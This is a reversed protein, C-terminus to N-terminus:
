LSPRTAKGKEILQNAVSRAKDIPIAFGIGEYGGTQSYILANIGIVRGEADCLAGGSNGPNIAADTQILGTYTKNSNGSSAPLTVTRNLASIIGATITREFGFPSVIAIAPEGVQLDRVSGLDASRLDKRDVKVVALDTEPDTGVVTGKIDEDTGITVWIENAGEVVHNNTIIYGDNRFIVGSGQGSVWLNEHFLDSMVSKTRINVVSPQVKKAVEIVTDTPLSAASDGRYVVRETTVPKAGGKFLTLLNMGLMTPVLFTAIIGGILASVFAMGVLMRSVSFASFSKNEPEIPVSKQEQTKDFFGPTAPESTVDVHEAQWVPEAARSGADEPVKSEEDVM